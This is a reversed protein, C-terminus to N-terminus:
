GHAKGLYYAPTKSSCGIGSTKAIKHPEINMEFYSRAIAASISDHGCGACLTSIAGEYNRMTYGLENVESDPHRFNSKLYSM